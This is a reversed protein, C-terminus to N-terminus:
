LAPKLVDDYKLGDDVVNNTLQDSISTIVSMLETTKDTFVITTTIIDTINIALNHHVNKLM